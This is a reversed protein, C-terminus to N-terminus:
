QNFWYFGDFDIDMFFPNPILKNKKTKKTKKTEPSSEELKSHNQVLTGITM